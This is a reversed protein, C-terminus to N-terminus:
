FEIGAGVDEVNVGNSRWMRIISPRDDFVVEIPYKDKFYKDYIEQKVDTDPRKDGSKRMFLTLHAEYGKFVRAELWAETVERYDEPRASILIIPHGKEEYQMLKDITELRPTDDWMADFFSKWDKKEPNDKVFHLRHKIDALTGDIDCLVINKGPKEYLGYQMAMQIIVDKGVKKKERYRDREVCKQWPTDIHKHEFKANIEKAMAKWMEKNKPNLNCDDVVVNGGHILISAAIDKETDVTLGENRGSWKGFHLMERILDRNVRGWGQAVIEKAYTTKGSAPLGSLMLLKM